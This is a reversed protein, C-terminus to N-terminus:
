ITKLFRVHERQLNWVQAPHSRLTLLISPFKQEPSGMDQYVSNGETVSWTGRLNSLTNSLIPKLTQTLPWLKHNLFSAAGQKSAQHM